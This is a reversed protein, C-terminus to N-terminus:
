AAPAAGRRRTATAARAAILTRLVSAALPAILIKRM